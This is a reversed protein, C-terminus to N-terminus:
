FPLDPLVIEFRHAGDPSFAADANQYVDPVNGLHKMGELLDSLVAAPIEAGCSPCAIKGQRPCSKSSLEYQCGCKCTIRIKFDM